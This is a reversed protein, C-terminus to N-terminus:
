KNFYMIRLFDKEKWRQSLLDFDNYVRGPRFYDNGPAALTLLAPITKNM